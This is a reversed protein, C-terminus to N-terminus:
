VLKTEYPLSSYDICDPIEKDDYYLANGITESTVTSLNVHRSVECPSDYGAVAKFAALESAADCMEKDLLLVGNLEDTENM